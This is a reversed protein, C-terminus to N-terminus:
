CQENKKLERIKTISELTYAQLLGQFELVLDKKSVKKVKGRFFCTKGNVITELGVAKDLYAKATEREVMSEFEGTRFRPLIIPM